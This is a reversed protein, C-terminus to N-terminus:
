PATATPAGDPKLPRVRLNRFHVRHPYLQLGIRGSPPRGPQLEGDVVQVDNVAVRVHAGYCHVRLRHWQDAQTPVAQTPALQHFLAGNKSDPSVNAFKAATDDLLQVEHFDAGNVNGDPSGRLFVGSNSGSGLKYELELEFHDYDADTALWGPPGSTRGVIAGGEVRWGNTGLATWGAL